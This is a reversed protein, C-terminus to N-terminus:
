PKLTYAVIVYALYVGVMVGGQVRGILRGKSLVPYCLVGTALMVGAHWLAPTELPHVVSAVGMVGLLNFVNSGVINGVAIDHQKTIVARVSAALEPLSTGFAVITLGVVGTPVGLVEIALYSAGNVLLEAGGALAALGVAVLVLDVWIPVRKGEGVEEAVEQEIERSLEPDAQGARYSFVVYGILGLFLVVGELREVRGDLLTLSALLSIVLMVPLELRLVAREVTVPHLLATAGLILCVNAINSGLVNGVALDGVGALGARVSAFLEPASTGFAVVTVGIAFPTMGWRAALRAAGRVLWDSGLVLLVLGVVLAGVAMPTTM